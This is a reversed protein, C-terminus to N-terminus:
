NRATWLPAGRGAAAGRVGGPVIRLWGQDELFRGILPRMMDDDYIPAESEFDGRPSLLVCGGLRIHVFIVVNIAALV